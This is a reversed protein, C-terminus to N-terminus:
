LSNSDKVIGQLLNCIKLYDGEKIKDQYDFLIEGIDKVKEMIEIASRPPEEDDSEANEYEGRYTRREEDEEEDSTVELDSFDSDNALPGMLKWENEDRGFLWGSGFYDSVTRGSRWLMSEYEEKRKKVCTPCHDGNYFFSMEGNEDMDHHGSMTFRGKLSGLDDCMVDCIGCEVCMEIETDPKEIETQIMKQCSNCTLLARQERSDYTHCLYDEIGTVSAARGARGFLYINRKRIVTETKWCKECCWEDQDRDKWEKGEDALCEVLTTENSIISYSEMYREFHIDKMPEKNKTDWVEHCRIGRPNDMWYRDNERLEVVELIETLVEGVAWSLADEEGEEAIKVDQETLGFLNYNDKATLIKQQLSFPVAM